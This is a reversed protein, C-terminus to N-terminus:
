YSLIPVSVTAFELPVYVAVFMQIIRNRRKDFLEVQSVIVEKLAEIQCTHKELEGALYNFDDARRQARHVQQTVPISSLCLASLERANARCAQAAWRHHEHLHLLYQM